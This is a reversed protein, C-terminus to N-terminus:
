GVCIAFFWDVESQLQTIDAPVQRVRRKVCDLGGENNINPRSVRDLM